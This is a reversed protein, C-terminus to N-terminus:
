NLGEGGAGRRHADDLWAALDILEMDDQAPSPFGAPQAPSPFGAPATEVLLRAESPVMEFPLEHRTPPLM